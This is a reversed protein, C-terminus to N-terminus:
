AGSGPPPCLRQCNQHYLPLTMSRAIHYAVQLSPPNGIIFTEEQPALGKLVDSHRRYFSGCIPFQFPEQEIGNKTVVVTQNRRLLVTKGFNDTVEVPRMTLSYVQTKKRSPDREVLYVAGGSRVTAEPTKAQLTHTTSPIQKGAAAFAPQAIWSVTLSIARQSLSSVRQLKEFFLHRKDLNNAEAHSDLARLSPYTSSVDGLAADPVANSVMLKGLDLSISPMPIIEGTGTPDQDQSDFKLGRAFEFQTNNGAAILDLTNFLFRANGRSIKIVNKSSDNVLIEKPNSPNLSRIDKLVLDGSQSLPGQHVEVKGEISFAKACDIQREDDDEVLQILCKPEDEASSPTEVNEVDTGGIPDDAEGVQNPARDSCAAIAFFLIAIFLFGRGKRNFIKPFFYSNM